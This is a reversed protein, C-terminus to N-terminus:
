LHKQDLSYEFLPIFMYRIRSDFNNSLNNWKAILSAKKITGYLRLSIIGLNDLKKVTYSDRDQANCVSLFFLYTLIFIM